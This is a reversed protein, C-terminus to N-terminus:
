PLPPLGLIARAQDHFDDMAAGDAEMDVAHQNYDGPADAPIPGAQAAQSRAWETHLDFIARQQEATMTM